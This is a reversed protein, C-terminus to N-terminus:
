RAWTTSHEHTIRMRETSSDTCYPRCPRCALRAQQWRAQVHSRNDGAVAGAAVTAQMDAAAAVSSDASRGMGDWCVCMSIQQRSARQGGRCATAVLYRSQTTMTKRVDAHPHSSLCSACCAQAASCMLLPAALTHAVRCHHEQPGGAPGKGVASRSPMMIASSAALPGVATASCAAMLARSMAPLLKRDRLGGTNKLHTSALNAKSFVRSAASGVRLPMVNSPQREAALRVAWGM